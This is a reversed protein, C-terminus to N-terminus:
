AAFFVVRAVQRVFGCRGPIREVFLRLVLSRIEIENSQRDRCSSWWFRVVGYLGEGKPPTANVFVVLLTASITADKGVSRSFM